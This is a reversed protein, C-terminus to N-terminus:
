CPIPPRFLTTSSQTDVLENYHGAISVLSFSSLVQATPLTTSSFCRHLSCDCDPCDEVSIPTAGDTSSKLGLHKSHDVMDSVLTQEPSQASSSINQCSISVSAIAQGGFVFMLLLILVNQYRIKRMLGIMATESYVQILVGHWYILEIM